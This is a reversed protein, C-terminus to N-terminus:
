ISNFNRELAIQLLYKSYERYPKAARRHNFFEFPKEEFTRLEIVSFFQRKKGFRHIWHNSFFRTCLLYETETFSVSRHLSRNQHHVPENFCQVEIFVYFITSLLVLLIRYLPSQLWAHCQYSHFSLYSFFARLSVGRSDHVQPFVFDTATLIIKYPGKSMRKKLLHKRIFYAFVFLQLRLFFILWNRETM